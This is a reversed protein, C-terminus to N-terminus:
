QVTCEIRGGIQRLVEESSRASERAKRCLDGVVVHWLERKVPIGISVCCNLYSLALSCVALTTPGQNREHFRRHCLLSEGYEVASPTSM